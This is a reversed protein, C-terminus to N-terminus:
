FLNALEEVSYRETLESQKELYKPDLGSHDIGAKYQSQEATRLSNFCASFHLLETPFRIERVSCTERESLFSSCIPDSSIYIKWM